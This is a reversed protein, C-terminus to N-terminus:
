QAPWLATIGKRIHAPLVRNIFLKQLFIFGEDSCDNEASPVILMLSGTQMGTQIKKLYSLISYHASFFNPNHLLYNQTPLQRIFLGIVAADFLIQLGKNIASQGNNVIKKFM